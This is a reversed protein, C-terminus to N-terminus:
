KEEDDSPDDITELSGANTMMRSNLYDLIGLFFFFFFFFFFLFTFLSKRKKEEKGDLKRNRSIQFKKLLLRQQVHYICIFRSNGSAIICSGDPSYSISSFAKTSSSTKWSTLDNVGRGGAIDMKGEIFGL